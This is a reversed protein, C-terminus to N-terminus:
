EFVFQNNYLDSYLGEQKVLEDHTGRQIIQGDKLVLIIDANLITKLRHAIVFSTRNAIVNDMARQIRAETVTDVNSTAEDLILLDPNTLITRAISVLQKQGTSLVSGSDMVHTSYGDPLTTIYDHINALKAASILEDETADKNGYIINERITGTFLVSDQLVIGINQRLSNVTLHNIDVGDYLIMNDEVNYFRNLLNMITTKGSGTPGVVAVMKGVEVDITVDRLVPIDRDYGFTLGNLKVGQKLPQYDVADAATVVDESEVLIAEVRDAGSIALQVVSYQAAIQQFPQFFRQAFQVFTVLVGIEIVQDIAMKSGFLIILSVALLTFGQIIPALMGSYTQGLTSTKCYAENFASFGSVTAEELGNTIIVKQGSIKEDIYGNMEGLRTQQQSVYKKARMVIGLLTVLLVVGLVIIILGLNFEERLMTVTTFLLLFLSSLIQVSAQTIMNSINDIDNTFVSLIEGDNSKDFFRIALKQLKEFLEFKMYNQSVAAVYSMCMSFIFSALATLMIYWSFVVLTENFRTQYTITESTLLEKLTFGTKKELEQPNISGSQAAMKNIDAESMGKLMEVYEAESLNQGTATNFAEVSAGRTSQISEVLSYNSLATISQGMKIPTEVQYYTSIIVFILAVVLSVTQPVKKVLYTGIYLLGSM